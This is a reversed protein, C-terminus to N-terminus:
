IYILHRRCPISSFLPFHAYNAEVPELLAEIEEYVIVALHKSKPLIVGFPTLKANKKNSNQFIKFTFLYSFM